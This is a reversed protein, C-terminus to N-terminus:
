TALMMSSTFSRPISWLNPAPRRRNKRTSGLRATCIRATSGRLSIPAELIAVAKDKYICVDMTSEIFDSRKIGSVDFYDDLPLLVDRYMVEPLGFASAYCCDPPIGAAMATLLKEQWEDNFSWNVKIGTEKEFNEGGSRMPLNYTEGWNANWVEIGVAQAVKTPAAAETPAITAAPGQTAPAVTPTAAAPAQTAPAATPTAGCAALAAAAGSVLGLWAANGLVERRTFGRTSM